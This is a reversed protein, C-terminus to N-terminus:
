PIQDLLEEFDPPTSTRELIQNAYAAALYVHASAAKPNTARAALEREQRARKALYELDSELYPRPSVPPIWTDGDIDCNPLGVDM